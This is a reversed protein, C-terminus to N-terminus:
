IDVKRVLGRVSARELALSKLPSRSLLDHLTPASGVACLEDFEDASVVVAENRGKVTIRQPHGAAALRVVESLKAKAESLKWVPMPKPSHPHNAMKQAEEFM